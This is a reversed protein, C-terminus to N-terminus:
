QLVRNCYMKMHVAQQAIRLIDTGAQAISQTNIEIKPFLKELEEDNIDLTKKFDYRISDYTETVSKTANLLIPAKTVRAKEPLKRFSKSLTGCLEVLNLLRECVSLVSSRKRQKEIDEILKHAQKTEVVALSRKTEADLKEKEELRKDKDKGESM